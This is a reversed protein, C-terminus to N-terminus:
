GGETRLRYGVGPESVIWRPAQPDDELKKRLRAIYVHLYHGEAAYGPGWVQRLLMSFTLVRDPHAILAKLLDYETPTLKVQRAGVRVDRRGLDVRLEGAEFVADAGTEPRAIHRLAVRIRALLEDVSFPKTLYDDAGLDLARVKDQEADRASVVLIPTPARERVARILALGDDDPLGLDLLIVDPRAREYEALADRVSGATDVDFGHGRLNTRLTRLIAPEDDVVLVRAQTERM